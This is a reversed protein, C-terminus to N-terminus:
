LVIPIESELTNTIHIKEPNPSQLNGHGPDPQFTQPMAAPLVLATAAKETITGQLPVARVHGVAGCAQCTQGSQGDLMGHGPAKCTLIPDTRRRRAKQFHRAPSDANVDSLNSGSPATVPQFAQRRPVM